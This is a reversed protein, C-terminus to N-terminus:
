GIVKEAYANVSSLCQVLVTTMAPQNCDTRVCVLNRQKSNDMRHALEKGSNIKM